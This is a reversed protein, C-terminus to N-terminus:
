EIGAGNLRAVERLNLFIRLAKHMLILHCSYRSISPKKLHPEVFEDRRGTPTDLISANWKQPQNELWNQFQDAIETVV